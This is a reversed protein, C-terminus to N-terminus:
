IRLGKARESECQINWAAWISQRVDELQARVEPFLREDSTDLIVTVSDYLKNYTDWHFPHKKPRKAM